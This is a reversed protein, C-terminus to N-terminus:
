ALQPAELSWSNTPQSYYFYTMTEPRGSSETLQNFPIGASSVERLIWKTHTLVLFTM